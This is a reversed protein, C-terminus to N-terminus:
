DTVAYVLQVRGGSGKVANISMSCTARCHKRAAVHSSTTSGQKLHNFRPAAYLESYGCALLAGGPGDQNCHLDPMTGTHLARSTCTHDDAEGASLLPGTTDHM